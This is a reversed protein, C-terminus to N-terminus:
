CGRRKAEGRGSARLGRGGQCGGRACLVRRYSCRREPTEQHAKFADESTYREYLLLARSDDKKRYEEYVSFELCGTEKRVSVEADEKRLRRALVKSDHGERVKYRSVVIFM